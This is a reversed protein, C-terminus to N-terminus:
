NKIASRMRGVVYSRTNWWGDHDIYFRLYPVGEKKCDSRLKYASCRDSMLEVVLVRSPGSYFTYAIRKFATIEKKEVRYAAFESQFIGEFYTWFAGGHSYQNEEAPMEDGWSFGSPASSGSPQTRCVPTEERTGTTPAASRDPEENGFLGNLLNKAEREATKDGGFLKSLLGM